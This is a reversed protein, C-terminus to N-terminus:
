IGLFLEDDDCPIYSDDWDNADQSLIEEIEIIRHISIGTANAVDDRHYGQDLLRMAKEEQTNM